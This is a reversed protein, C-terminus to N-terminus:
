GRPAAAGLELAADAGIALTGPPHGAAASCALLTLTADATLQGDSVTLRVTRSSDASTYTHTPAVDTSPSSGDGFDWQYTLADSDPDSSQSGDFHVVIGPRLIESDAVITAVPPRDPMEEAHFRVHVIQRSTRGKADAQGGHVLLKLRNTRHPGLRLETHRLVGRVGVQTGQETIPKLAATVDRANLRARVSGPGGAAFTVIVNVDPHAPVTAGPAPTIVQVLDPTSRPRPRRSRAGASVLLLLVASVSVLAVIWRVPCRSCVFRERSPCDALHTG